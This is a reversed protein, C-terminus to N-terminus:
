VRRSSKKPDDLDVLEVTLGTLPKNPRKDWPRLPEVYSVTNWETLADTVSDFRRALKPNTTSTLELTGAYTHPNWREVLRGDHPTPKGNAAGIVRVSVSM